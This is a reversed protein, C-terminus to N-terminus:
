HQARPKLGRKALARDMAAGLEVKHDFTAAGETADVQPSPPSLRSTKEIPAKKLAAIAQEAPMDTELALHRALEERGKAEPAGIIAGVRIRETTQGAKEGAKEGKQTAEALVARAAAFKDATTATETGPEVVAPKTQAAAAVAALGTNETM